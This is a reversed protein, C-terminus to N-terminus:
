ETYALWNKNWKEVTAEAKALAEQTKEPQVYSFSGKYTDEFLETLVDNLYGQDYVIGNFIYDTLMEVGEDSLEPSIFTKVKEVYATQIYKGGTYSLLEVFGDSMERSETTKPVCMLVAEKGCLTYYKAQGETAMPNPLVGVRFTENQSNFLEIKQLPGNYFLARSDMFAYVPDSNWETRAYAASNINLIHEIVSNFNTKGDYLKYQGNEVSVQKIGGYGYFQVMGQTAFGYTDEDTWQPSGSNKTVLKAVNIMEDVTWKGDKVLKYFDPVAGPELGDLMAANYFTVYSSLEDLFSFDGSVFLTKGNITYAEVSAQSYYSMDLNIYESNALDCVLGNEVLKQAEGVRPMAIHYKQNGVAKAELLLSSIQSGRANIWNITVGYTELIDANRRLVANNVISEAGDSQWDKAILEPQTWPAVANETGWTTVLVNLTQGSWKEGWKPPSPPVDPPFAQASSDNGTDSPLSTDTSASGVGSNSSDTVVADSGSNTTQAGNGCSFLFCLCMFLALFSALLRKVKIKKM